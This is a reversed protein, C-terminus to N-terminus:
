NSVREVGKERTIKLRKRKIKRLNRELSTISLLQALSRRHTTPNKQNEFIDEVHDKIIANNGRSNIRNIRLVVM